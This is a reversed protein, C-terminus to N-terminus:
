FSRLSKIQVQQTAKLFRTTVFLRLRKLLLVKSRAHGRRTTEVHQFGLKTNFCTSNLKQHTLGIRNFDLRSCFFYYLCIYIYLIHLGYITRHHERKMRGPCEEAFSRASCRRRAETRGDVSRSRRPRSRLQGLVTCTIFASATTLWRHSSKMCIHSSKMCHLVIYHQDVTEKRSLSCAEAINSVAGEM